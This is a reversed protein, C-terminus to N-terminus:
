LDLNRGKWTVQKKTKSQKISYMFLGIFFVLFIPYILVIMISFNGVKRSLCWTLLGSLGYGWLYIGNEWMFPAVGSLFSIMLGTIWLSVLTLLWPSILGAGTAFNKTWGQILSQMGQSYMRFYIAGQGGIARITLGKKQYAKGLAIDELIDKKAAEHGGIAWYHSKLVVQCPGFFSQSARKQGRPTFLGTTMMVILNFMLSFNEYFKQIRHYPQISLPTQNHHFTNLIKILGDKELVTDADLFMFINGKAITAGQYCAYPKGFWTRPLNQISLVESNYKKAITVTADTSGDDVVIVEKFWGQQAQLSKLLPEIRLAENRAPIIISVDYDDNSLKVKTTATPIRWLLVLSISTLLLALATIILNM